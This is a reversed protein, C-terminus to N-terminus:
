EGETATRLIEELTTIGQIVKHIGSEMLTTMGNDLAKRKIIEPLANQLVLNRITQNVELIEFIGVRGFYGTNNCEKCGRGRYFLVQENHDTRLGLNELCSNGPTYAEKCHHCIRRVLRQAVALTLSNCVLFPEIGMNILRILTGVADNTHLTSFVLHGTLASRIAIEATELDRVEGVMIIDPDQRLISRLGNAFTLGIKFNAQIQNIGNVQYEVPDEITIINQEPSRIRSLISYLTTSKGSGTPGTLLIMGYPLYMHHKFIKLQNSDLGLEELSFNFSSKELLRLVIKEGFITPITSVRLDIERQGYRITFRGDQPMRREAIDLNSLIKVRCIIASQWQKSPSIIKHLVGDIRYRILLEKETPEIHIDSARKSVANSIIYDVLKVIPADDIQKKLLDLDIKEEEEKKIEFQQDHLDRLVELIQNEEQKKYLLNIADEIDRKKAILPRIEKGVLKQIDDIAVLDFPDSMALFISREDVHFPLALYKRAISEPIFSANDPNIQQFNDGAIYDINLQKALTKLLNEELIVGMNVLIDGLREGTHKHKYYAEELQAKTILNDQILLNGLLEYEQRYSKSM